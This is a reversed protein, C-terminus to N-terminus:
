TIAKYRRKSEGNSSLASQHLQMVTEFAGLAMQGAEIVGAEIFDIEIPFADM